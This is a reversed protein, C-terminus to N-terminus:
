ILDLKIQAQELSIVPQGEILVDKLTAIGGAMQQFAIAEQKKAEQYFDLHSYDAKLEFGLDYEGIMQLWESFFYEATPICSNTYHNKIAETMNKYRSSEIDLLPAPVDYASGIAKKCEILMESFQMDSMKATLPHVKADTSILVNKDQGRRLGFRQSLRKLVSEKESKLSSLALMGSEKVGMSILNLAGRNAYMETLAQWIVVYTSIVESLSEARSGGFITENDQTNLSIDYFVHVDEPKLKYSKGGGASVTYYKVKREYMIDFENEYYPTILQRPIIYYDYEGSISNLVKKVYAVGHLKTQTDLKKFWRKFDEKPNPRMLKKIIKKAKPTTIQKDDENLAWVKLNAISQASKSIVTRLADCKKYAFIRGDVTSCDIFYDKGSIKEKLVSFLEHKDTFSNINEIGNMSINKLLYISM